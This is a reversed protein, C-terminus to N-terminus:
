LCEDVCSSVCTLQLLCPSSSVTPLFFMGRNRTTTTASEWTESRFIEGEMDTNRSMRICNSDVQPGQIHSPSSYDAIVSIKVAGALSSLM